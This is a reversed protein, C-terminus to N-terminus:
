LLHSMQAASLNSGCLEIVSLKNCRAILQCLLELNNQGYNNNIDWWYPNQGLYIEKLTEDITPHVCLACLIQNGQEANISFEDLNVLELPPSLEIIRTVMNTLAQTVENQMGESRMTALYKLNSCKRALDVLLDQNIEDWKLLVGFRIM